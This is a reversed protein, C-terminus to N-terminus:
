VYIDWSSVSGSGGSGFSFFANGDTGKLRKMYASLTSVGSITPASTFAGLRGNYVPM